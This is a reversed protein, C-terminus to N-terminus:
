DNEILIQGDYKRFQEFRLDTVVIDGVDYSSQKNIYKLKLM